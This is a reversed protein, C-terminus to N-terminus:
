SADYIRRLRERTMGLISDFRSLKMGELTPRNTPSTRSSRPTKM